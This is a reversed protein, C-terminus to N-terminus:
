QCGKRYMQKVGTRIHLRYKQKIVIWRALYECQYQKNEPMWELPNKAGKSRNASLDVPILNQPDNAFTRRKDKTWAFGGTEHADELPVIHDIDLKSAQTFTKNTYPDYFQGHSVNCSKNRKFKVPVKSADILAESRTNQCDGDSDIWHPWDKRNYEGQSAPVRASVTSFSTEKVKIEKQGSSKQVCYAKHCHYLGTSRDYHGGNKDQGGSHAFSVSSVFALLM